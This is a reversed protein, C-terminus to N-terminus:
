GPMRIDLLLLDPRRERTLEMAQVGTGAEGAIEIDPESALLQRLRVRAPAEDDVILVRIV